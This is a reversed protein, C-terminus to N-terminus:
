PVPDIGGEHFPHCRLLRRTGLWAGRVLGHREIAERAYDSCTPAYRCHTGLFPSLTAKYARILFLIAHKM